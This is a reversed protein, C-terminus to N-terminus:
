ARSLPSHTGTKGSSPSNSVERSVIVIRRGSRLGPICTRITRVVSAAPFTPVAADWGDPLQRHHLRRFQEALESYKAKYEKVRGFWDDRLTRGRKGLGNQFHEYVGDPVLFKADEPWGYSRKALRVEDEGLPEGHAASTDQKHPAGFGIHSDLIIFTPRDGTRRFAELARAFADTDNADDVHLVKWGYGEFRRGVDEDFTIDTPGDITIHNNDYIWCLNALKLHGALSAAESAVGEMMDGDSCFAYVDYDFLTLEPGVHLILTAPVALVATLILATLWGGFELRHSGLDRRAADPGQFAPALVWVSGGVGVAVVAALILITWSARRAARDVKMPPAGRHRTSAAQRDHANADRADAAFDLSCDAFIPVTRPREPRSGGRHGRHNRPCTPTAAKNRYPPRGRLPPRDAHIPFAARVEELVVTPILILEGPFAQSPGLKHSVDTVVVRPSGAMPIVIEGVRPLALCRAQFQKDPVEEGEPGLYVFNVPTPESM